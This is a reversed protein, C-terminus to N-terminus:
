AIAMRMRGSSGAVNTEMESSIGFAKGAYTQLAFFVFLKELV